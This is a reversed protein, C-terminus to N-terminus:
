KLYRFGHSAAERLSAIHPFHTAGRAAGITQRAQYELMKHQSGSPKWRHDFDCFFGGFERDVSHPFWAGLLGHLETELQGRLTDKMSRDIATIQIRGSYGMMHSM